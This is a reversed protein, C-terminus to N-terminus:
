DSRYFRFYAACYGGSDLELVCGDNGILCEKTGSNLTVSIRLGGLKTPKASDGSNSLVSGDSLKVLLGSDRLSVRITEPARVLRVVAESGLPLEIDQTVCSNGARQVLADTMCSTVSGPYKPSASGPPPLIVQGDLSLEYTFMTWPLFSCIRTEGTWVDQSGESTDLDDRNEETRACAVSFIWGFCIVVVSYIRNNMWNAEM